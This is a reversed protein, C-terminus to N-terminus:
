EYRLAVLPDVLTARRAPFYCAALAVLTLLVSVGVFTVPDYASIGFLFTKLLRTLALAAALGLVVGILALRLGEGVILRFVDTPQAGMTVRVGIESIRQTVTYSMVGYVGVGALVLALVAFIGILWTRFRTDSTSTAINEEMSRVNVIPQNPDIEAVATRLSSVAGHPETATRMVLSLQFVPLLGDAQRYPLYMEAAPANGLNQLVDGVVGVVQMWPVQDDPLAGLQMRKGIPSENPWYTHAMTANVVVVAPAKEIDSPTFLRGQLVPAGITEFYNPTVTFYGAATFDHPSKPPRGYINFHIAGGGANVPVASTAAASRVGPLSQARQVLRDFFEFRQEPKAYANQSLPFDAALLHDPQFGPSVEQLRSFSRLLLGAGVLLLMAMAIEAAVLLGRTRQHGPGATSGRSGENLTERLDLRATRLAPVIGFFIGTVISIGLTFLLVRYDLEVTLAQPVSGAALRLLPGLAAIAILIGLVGGSFSLLVSETLLQRVVRSRSAGMATRIAIERGRSAARALLLNAVNVCAILLVAAVAGLLLLLAPRINKVMQERVGVINASVSTNYDPYQQELRKAILVMETRAQEQTVDPKLRAMAFIGPHWNRDDPLTKAWPTFPLYVDAPFILEFGAPLVGVVTRPVSDLTVSQGIIEPSGAFRRKWLGYNLLVVPNGGARDEELLFTRGLAANVGLLPFLGATAYQSKLREPDGSSGTLAITSPRMGEVSEFSHSQDRWDQWNQYSVTITPYPSKEALIVLRSPDKFPLPRLLVANVVTFIATNAGIGFALTLIAILSFAPSKTLLRFAYRLDQFLKM